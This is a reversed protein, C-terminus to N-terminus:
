SPWLSGYSNALFGRDCLTDLSYYNLHLLNLYFSRVTFCGKINMDRRVKDLSSDRLNAENLKNFFSLLTDDDIFRDQVFVLAWAFSGSRQEQYDAVYANRDM